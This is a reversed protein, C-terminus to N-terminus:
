PGAHAHCSCRVPACLLGAYILCSCTCPPCAGSEATLTADASSHALSSSSIGKVNRQGRLHANQHLAILQRQLTDLLEIHVHLALFPLQVRQTVQILCQGDGLRDDKGVGPSLHKAAAWGHINTTQRASRESKGCPSSSNAASVTAQLTMQSTLACSEAVVTKTCDSPRDLTALSSKICFCILRSLLPEGVTM